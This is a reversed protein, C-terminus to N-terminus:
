AVYPYETQIGKYLTNLISAEVHIYIKMYIQCILHLNTKHGSVSTKLFGLPFSGM